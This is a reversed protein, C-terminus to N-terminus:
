PRYITQATKAKIAGIQKVFKLRKLLLMLIEDDIKDINARLENIDM